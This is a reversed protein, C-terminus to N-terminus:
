ERGVRPNEESSRFRLSLPHVRKKSSPHTGSAAQTRSIKELPRPPHIDTQPTDDKLHNTENRPGHLPPDFSIFTTVAWWPPCGGDWYNGSGGSPFSCSPDCLLSSGPAPGLLFLIPVPPSHSICFVVPCLFFAFLAKVRDKDSNLTAYVNCLSPM